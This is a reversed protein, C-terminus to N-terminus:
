HNLLVVLEIGSNVEFKKYISKLHNKLTHKSIFLSEAIKDFVLGERMLLCVEIERKTLSVSNMKKYLESNLDLGKKTSYSKSMLYLDVKQLFKMRPYPKLFYDLVGLRLADVASDMSGNGTLIIVPIDSRIQKIKKIAQIGSMGEMILDVIVLDFIDKSFKKVGEEGNIATTVLYGKYSLDEKLTHRIIEEDEIVLISNKSM